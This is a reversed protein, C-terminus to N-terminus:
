KSGIKCEETQKKTKLFHLAHLLLYSASLTMQQRLFFCSDVDFHYKCLCLQRKKFQCWSSFHSIFSFLHMACVNINKKLDITQKHLMLFYLFHFMQMPSFVLTFRTIETGRFKQTLKLITAMSQKFWQFNKACSYLSFLYLVFLSLLLVCHV